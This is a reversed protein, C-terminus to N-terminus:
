HLRGTRLSWSLAAITVGMLAVLVLSASLGFGAAVFGLIPPFLLFGLYGMSTAAAVAIGPEVAPVRAAASIAVPIVNAAGLGVIGFGAASLNPWPAVVALTMGVAILLGGGLVTWFRGIRAVAFDGILRCCVMALSFAVVGSSALGTESQKVTSLYLASWDTVAGEAAFGLFVIAGMGLVAVPPLVFRLGAGAAPGDPWLHMASWVALVFLAVSAAIAGSGDGYGTAIFAGGLASGVLVGVSYFAHLSSMTPRGRAKEVASAQVNMAVDLAGTFAGFAVAASFLAPLSPSVAPWPSAVAMAIGLAATPRQSGLRGLIWGTLPMTVIAGIAMAFLVLGIVAPEIEMRRAVVPIHVAWVGATCGLAFFTASVAIRARTLSPPVASPRLTM